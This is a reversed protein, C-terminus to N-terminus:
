RVGVGVEGGVSVWKRRWNGEDRPGWFDLGALAVDIDRGKYTSIGM